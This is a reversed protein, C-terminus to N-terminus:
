IAMQSHCPRLGYSYLGYSCLWIRIAHDSAMVIYAMLIYANAFPMTPVLGVRNTAFYADADAMPMPWRCRGDAMPMADCRVDFRLHAVGHKVLARARAHTCAPTRDTGVGDAKVSTVDSQDDAAATELAQPNVICTVARTM